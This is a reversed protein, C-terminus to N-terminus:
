GRETQSLARNGRTVSKLGAGQNVTQVFNALGEFDREDQDPGAEVLSGQRITAGDRDIVGIRCKVTVASSGGPAESGMAACLEAVNRPDKMM